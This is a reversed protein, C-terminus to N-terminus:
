REAVTVKPPSLLFFFPHRCRKNLAQSPVMKTPIKDRQLRLGPFTPAILPRVQSTNGHWPIPVPGGGRTLCARDGDGPVRLRQHRGSAGPITQIGSSRTSEERPAARRSIPLGGRGSREPEKSRKLITPIRGSARQEMFAVRRVKFSSAFLSRKCARQTRQLLQRLSGSSMHFSIGPRRGCHM